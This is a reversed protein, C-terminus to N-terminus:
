VICRFISYHINFYSPFVMFNVVNSCELMILRNIV